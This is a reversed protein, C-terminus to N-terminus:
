VKGDTLNLDLDLLLARENYAYAGLTAIVSQGKESANYM